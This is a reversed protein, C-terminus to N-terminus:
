EIGFLTDIFDMMNKCVNDHIEEISMQAIEICKNIDEMNFVEKELLKRTLVSYEALLDIKTGSIAIKGNDVNLM